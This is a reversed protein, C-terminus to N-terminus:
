NGWDYQVVHDGPLVSYIGGRVIAVSTTDYVKIVQIFGHPYAHEKKTFGELQTQVSVAGLVDGVELGANKGKDVYVIDFMGSNEKRDRSAVIYGEIKPKNYLELREHKADPPRMDSYSILLNGTLIEEYSQLIKAVTEGQKIIAVEAIGIVQVIYGMRTKNVPHTIEIKRIVFFKDGLNVPEKTTVYIYEYKGSLNKRSPSGAVIGLEDVRDTIYGSSIYLEANVLPKIKKPAPKAVPAPVAKKPEAEVVPESVPKEKQAEKQILYLPIRINQGPTLRDPNAIDPNEKWVKPWLFPDNLEKKSIDWLTDGQQIKYDKIEQKQAFASAPISSLLIIFILILKKNLM